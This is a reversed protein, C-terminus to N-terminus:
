RYRPRVPGPAAQLQNTLLDAWESARQWQDQKAHFEEQLYTLQQRVDAVLQQQAQAQPLNDYHIWM